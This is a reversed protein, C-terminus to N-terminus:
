CIIESPFLISYDVSHGLVLPGCFRAFSTASLMEFSKEVAIRHMACVTALAVLLGTIQHYKRHYAM